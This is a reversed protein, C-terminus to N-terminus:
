AVMFYKAKRAKANVNKKHAHLEFTGYVKTLVGIFGSGKSEDM